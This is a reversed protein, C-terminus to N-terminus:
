ARSLSWLKLVRGRPDSLSPTLEHRFNWHKAAETLEVEVGEGKLFLGTAGVKLLPEAYVLLRPLPALARATVIEVGKRRFTEARAHHVQAPLALEDVVAQLFRCRKLLSDILHVTGGEPKLLIALVAGPFGAGAGLDAWTKAAPALPRLQASDFAHRLWFEALASPGVLNFRGSWEELLLRYRELDAM